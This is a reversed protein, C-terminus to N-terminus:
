PGPTQKGVGFYLNKGNDCIVRGTLSGEQSSQLQVVFSYLYIKDQTNFM